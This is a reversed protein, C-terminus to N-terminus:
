TNFILGAKSKDRFKFSVEVIKCIVLERNHQNVSVSISMMNPSTIKEGALGKELNFEKAM